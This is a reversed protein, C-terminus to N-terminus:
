QKKKIIIQKIEGNLSEYKKKMNELAKKLEEIDKDEGTAKELIKLHITLDNYERIKRALEEDKEIKSLENYERIKRVLEEDKTKKSEEHWYKEQVFSKEKMDLEHKQAAEAMAQKSENKSKLYNYVLCAILVGLILVVVAWILCSMVAPHNFVCGEFPQPPFHNGCHSFLCLTNM